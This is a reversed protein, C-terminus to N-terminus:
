FYVNHDIIDSTFTFDVAFRKDNSDAVGTFYFNDGLALQFEVGSTLKALETMEKAISQEVLTRCPFKIRKSKYNSLSSFLTVSGIPFFLCDM